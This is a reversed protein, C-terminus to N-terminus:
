LHTYIAQKVIAKHFSTHKITSFTCKFYKLDKLYMFFQAKLYHLLYEGKHQELDSLGENM